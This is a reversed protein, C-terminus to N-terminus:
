RTRVALTGGPHEKGFRITSEVPSLLRVELVQSTQILRLTELGGFYQGDLFVDPHAGSPFRPSMARPRLLEPRLRQIARALDNRREKVLEDTTLTLRKSGTSFPAPRTRTAEEVRPSSACAAGVGILLLPVLVVHRAPPRLRAAVFRASFM